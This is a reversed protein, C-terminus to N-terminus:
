VATTRSAVWADILDSRWAVSKSTLKVPRPFKGESILKYITSRALGTQAEVQKRRKLTLASQITETHTM